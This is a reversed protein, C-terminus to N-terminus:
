HVLLTMRELNPLPVADEAYPSFNPLSKWTISEELRDHPLPCKAFGYPPWVCNTDMAIPSWRMSLPSMVFGGIVRSRITQREMSRVM